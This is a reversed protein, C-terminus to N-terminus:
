NNKITGGDTTRNVKMDDLGINPALYSYNNTSSWTKITAIMNTALSKGAASTGGVNTAGSDYGVEEYSWFPYVGNCVNTFGQDLYTVGNTYDSNIGFRGITGNYAVPVISGNTYGATGAADSVGAYAIVFNTLGRTFQLPTNTDTSDTITVTNTGLTNTLLGCLGGGSAYGNNGKNVTLGNVTGAPTVDLNTISGSANANINFQITSALAGSKAALFASLRTGSDPFRGSLWLALNTDSLNGTLLNGTVTGQSILQNLVPTTINTVTCGKNAYFGFAVVGIKSINLTKYTVGNKTGTFASTSQLTDSFAINGKQLSTNPNTSGSNINGNFSFGGVNVYLSGIKNTNAPNNTIKSYDFFPLKINNTGAAATQIGAESGSWYAAIDVGSNTGVTCNTFYLNGASAVGNSAKDTAALNAGYTNYLYANAASRFATSGTIYVVEASASAISLAAMAAVLLSKTHKM